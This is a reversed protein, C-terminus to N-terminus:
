DNSADPKGYTKNFEEGYAFMSKETTEDTGEKGEEAPKEENIAKMADDYVSM